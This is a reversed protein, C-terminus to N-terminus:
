YDYRQQKVVKDETRLKALKDMFIPDATTPPIANIKNVADDLAQENKRFKSKLHWTPSIGGPSATASEKIMTTDAATAVTISQPSSADEQTLPKFQNATHVPLTVM